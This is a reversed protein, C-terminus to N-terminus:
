RVSQIRVKVPNNWDLDSEFNTNNRSKIIIYTKTDVPAYYKIQRPVISNGGNVSENSDVEMNKSIEYIITKRGNKNAKIEKEIQQLIDSDHSEDEYAILEENNEDLKFEEIKDTNEKISNMTNIVKITKHVPKQSKKETICVSFNENKVTQDQKLTFQQCSISNLETLSTISSRDKVKISGFFLVSLTLALIAFGSTFENKSSKIQLVSEIRRKLQKKQQFFPLTLVPVFVCSEEIKLILKAYLIPEKLYLCASSDAKLERELKIHSILIHAAPNFYFIIESFHIFLNVWHDRNFVHSLEHALICEAEKISLQNIWSVPVIIVPKLVGTLFASSVKDSQLLIISKKISYYNKISAFIEIWQNNILPASRSILKRLYFHSLLFRLFFITSGALWISNIWRLVIPRDLVQTIFSNPYYGVTNQNWLFFFTFISISVMALLAILSLVYNLRTSKVLIIRIFWMFLVIIAGQWLSHILTTAFVEQISLHETLILPKM